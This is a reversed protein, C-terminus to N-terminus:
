EYINRFRRRLVGDWYHETVVLYGKNNYTYKKEVTHKKGSFSNRFNEGFLIVGGESFQFTTTLFTSMLKDNKYNYKISTTDNAIIDFSQNIRGQNDYSSIYERWEKEFYNFQKQKVLLGNEYTYICDQKLSPTGNIISHDTYRLMRGDQDYSMDSYDFSGITDQYTENLRILRNNKYHFYRKIHRPQNCLDCQYVLRKLTDYVYDHDNLIISDGKSTIQYNSADIIKGSADTVIEDYNRVSQKDDLKTVTYFRKTKSNPYESYYHSSRKGSSFFIGDADRGQADYTKISITDTKIYDYIEEKISIWKKIGKPPESEKIQVVDSANKPLLKIMYVSQAKVQQTLLMLLVFVFLISQIPIIFHKYKNM